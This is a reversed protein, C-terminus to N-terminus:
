FKQLLPRFVRCTCQGGKWDHVLASQQHFGVCTWNILGIITTIAAISSSLCTCNATMPFSQLGFQFAIKFHEKSIAFKSRLFTAFQFTPRPRFSSLPAPPPHLPPTSPLYSHLSVTGWLDSTKVPRREMIIGSHLTCSSWKKEITKSFSRPFYIQAPKSNFHFTLIYM